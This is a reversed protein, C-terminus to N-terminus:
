PTYWISSSYAREQITDPQEAAHEMELAIADFLSHRPTPIELVRVYYFASEGPDFGPDKWVASLQEAGISILRCYSQGSWALNYVKEHQQGTADLWGKVIQVRDLNARMAALISERTNDEAWVAALGSTETSTKWTSKWTNKQVPMMEPIISVGDSLASGKAAEQPPAPAPLISSFLARGEGKDIARNLIWAAFHAKITDILGLGDTVVGERDIHRIVGLLEAHDSVVLFDLPTEIQVRARHYPHIVPMGMAYRYATEPDASLNNNATLCGIGSCLQPPVMAHYDPM